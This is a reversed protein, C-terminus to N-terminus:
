PLVPTPAFVSVLFVCFLVEFCCFLSYDIDQISAQDVDSVAILLAPYYNSVMHLISITWFKQM